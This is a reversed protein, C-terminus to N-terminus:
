CVAYKEAFTLLINPIIFFYGYKQLCFHFSDAEQGVGDERIAAYLSHRRHNSLFQCLLVVHGNDGSVARFLLVGREITEAFCGDVVAVKGEWLNVAPLVVEAFGVTPEVSSM